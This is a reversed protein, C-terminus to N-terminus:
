ESLLIKDIMLEFNEARKNGILIGIEELFNDSFNPRNLRRGRYTPTMSNLPIKLEEWEGSTDFEIKFSHYDKSSSKVRLQYTKGDGKLRLVIHSVNDIRKQPFQHRLSTFGGNNDLSVYGSFIAHGDENLVLQGSSRGGMVGDNVINWNTLECAKNFDFLTISDINDFAM